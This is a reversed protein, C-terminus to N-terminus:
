PQECRKAAARELRENIAAGLGTQPLRRAVLETVATKDLERLFQFFNAAAEILDETASLQRGAGFGEPSSGFILAGMTQRRDPPVERWDMVLRLPKAPAYHSPLQGPAAPATNSIKSEQLPGTVREIEERPVGGQRLLLARGESWGVITSELGIRCSGGDVILPVEDGLEEYVAAASTPSIRGFRNASPAALPKGFAELLRQLLPHSPVRVAVTPLGSTVLDLVAAQKPLTLTLPGPWFMEALRRLVPPFETVLAEASAMNKVHVILPDFTPRNKIAFIQAVAAPNTADAALGYVTETPIAVTEGRRWLAVAQAIVEEEKV